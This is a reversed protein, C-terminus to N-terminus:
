GSEAEGGLDRKWLPPRTVVGLHIRMTRQVDEELLGYWFEELLERFRDSRNGEYHAPGLRYYDLIASYRELDVENLRVSLYYKRTGPVSSVLDKSDYM